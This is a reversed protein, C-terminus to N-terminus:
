SEKKWSFTLLKWLYYYFKGCRSMIILYTFAHLICVNQPFIDIIIKINPFSFNLKFACYLSEPSSNFTGLRREGGLSPSGLFCQFLAGFSWNMHLTLWNGIWKCFLVYCVFLGWNDYSDVDENSVRVYIWKHSILLFHFLSKATFSITQLGNNLSHIFQGQPPTLPYEWQVKYIECGGPELPLIYNISSELIYAM